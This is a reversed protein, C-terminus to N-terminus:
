EQELLKRRTAREVAVGIGVLSFSLIALYNIDLWPPDHGQFMSSRFMEIGQVIPSWVLVDRLEVPMMAPIYFTGSTFYMIAISVSWIKEWSHFYASLAANIIGVGFACGGLFVFTLVFRLPDIPLSELGFILFVSILTMAVLFETALELLTRSTFVDLTTVPPLQLLARNARVASMLNGGIHTFLHYPIIGTFYFVPFSTGVPPDGKAMFQIIFVLLSIHLLPEFLAWLYGLKARGFRGRIERLMLAGIVRFQTFLADFRSFKQRIRRQHITKRKLEALGQGDLVTTGGSLFRRTLIHLLSRGVPEDDPYAKLIAAGYPVADGYRGAASTAAFSVRQAGDHDPDFQLVAAMDALSEDYRGLSCLVIGRQMLLGLHQESIALGATAASVSGEFDKSESRSVSMLYWLDATEPAKRDFSDELCIIAEASQGEQLLYHVHAQIYVPNEPELTWARSAFLAAQELRGLRSCAVSLQFFVLADDTHSRAAQVLYGAAEVSRGVFNLLVGCHRAFEWNGPDARIANIAHEVSAEVAGEAALLGSLHRQQEASLSGANDLLRLASIADKHEQTACFVVVAHTAVRMDQPALTRARRAKEIALDIDGRLLAEESEKGLELARLTAAGGDPMSTRSAADGAAEDQLSDGIGAKGNM